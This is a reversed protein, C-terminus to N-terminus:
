ASNSGTAYTMTSSTSTWYVTSGDPAKLLFRVVGAVAEPDLCVEDDYPRGKRIIRWIHQLRGGPGRWSPKGGYSRAEWISLYLEDDDEFRTLHLGHVHCSCKVLAERVGKM